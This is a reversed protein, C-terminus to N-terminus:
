VIYIRIYINEHVLCKESIFAFSPKPSLQRPPAPPHHLQCDRRKARLYFVYFFDLGFNYLNSQSDCM